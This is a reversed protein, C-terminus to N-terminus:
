SKWRYFVAKRGAVKGVKREMDGALRARECAKQTQGDATKLLRSIDSLRTWRRISALQDNRRLLPPRKASQTAQHREWARDAMRQFSAEQEMDRVWERGHTM